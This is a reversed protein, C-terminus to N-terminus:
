RLGPVGTPCNIRPTGIHVCDRDGAPGSVEPAFQHAQEFGRVPHSDQRAAGAGIGSQFPHPAVQGGAFSDGFGHGVCVGHHVRGSVGRGRLAAEHMRDVEPAARRVDVDVAGAPQEFGGCRGPDAVEQVDGDHAHVPRGHRVQAELVRGFFEDADGVHRPGDRACGLEM